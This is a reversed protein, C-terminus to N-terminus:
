EPASIAMTHRSADIIPRLRFISPKLTSSIRVRGLSSNFTGMLIFSKTSTSCFIFGDTEFLSKLLYSLQILSNPLQQFNTFLRVRAITALLVYINETFQIVSVDKTGGIYQNQLVLTRFKAFNQLILVFSMDTAVIQLFNKPGESSLNPVFNVTGFKIKIIILKNRFNKIEFEILNTM